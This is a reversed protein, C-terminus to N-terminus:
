NRQVVYIGLLILITGIITFITLAEDLILYSAIIGSIPILFFFTGTKIVGIKKITNFWIVWTLATTVAAVYIILLFSNLSVNSIQNIEGTFISLLLLIVTGGLVAYFTTILGGYKKLMYLILRNFEYKSDTDPRVM